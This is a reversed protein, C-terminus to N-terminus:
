TKKLITLSLDDRPSVDGVFRAVDETLKRAMETASHHRWSHLREMVRELGYAEGQENVAETLGDTYGFFTEGSHVECEIENFEATRSLGLALQGKPLERVGSESVIVPPLHGANVYRIKNESTRIEVYLLSAFITKVSDRCFIGNVRRLLESLDPTETALARITSQLKAALLAARLGKGAVDALILGYRHDGLSLCDVLDGGVERAPSYQFAISWGGVVPCSDPMLAQQILRGSELETRAITKDKLELILVFLVFVFGLVGNDALFFNGIRFTLGNLAFFLGLVLLLRRTPSLHVLMGRMLWWATTIVRILWNKKRLHQRRQEDIYFAHMERYDRRLARVHEGGRVDDKLTEFIGRDNSTPRNM